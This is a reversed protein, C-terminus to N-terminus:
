RGQRRAESPQPGPPRHTQKEGGRLPGVVRTVEAALVCQRCRVRGGDLAVTCSQCRGLRAEVGPIAVLFTLAGHASWQRLMTETRWQIERPEFDASSTLKLLPHDGCEELAAVLLNTTTGRELYLALLLPVAADLQVRAVVALLRRVSPRPAKAIIRGYAGAIHDEEARSLPGRRYRAKAQNVVIALEARTVRRDRRLLANSSPAVRAYSRASARTAVVSTGRGYGKLGEASDVGSRPSELPAHENHPPRPSQESATDVASGTTPGGAAPVDDAM